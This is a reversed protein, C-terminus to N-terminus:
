SFIKEPNKGEIVYPNQFIGKFETREEKVYWGQEIVFKLQKPFLGFFQSKPKIVKKIKEDPVEISNMQGETLYGEPFYGPERLNNKFLRYTHILWVREGKVLCRGSSVNGFPVIEGNRLFICDGDLVSDASYNTPDLVIRKKRYDILICEVNM